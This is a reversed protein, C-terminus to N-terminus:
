RGFRAHSLPSWSCVLMNLAAKTMCYTPVQTNLAGYAFAGLSSSIHMIVGRRGPVELFPLFAQSVLAPGIANIKFIRLAAELDVKFASEENPCQGLTVDISLECLHFQQERVIGANNVLYDLGKEGLIERVPEVSQTISDPKSVEMQVIHVSGGLAKLADAKEPTRCAAIIINSPDASLQKVLTFGIGRNASHGQPDALWRCDASSVSM